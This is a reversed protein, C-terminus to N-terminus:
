AAGWDMYIGASCQANAGADTYMQYRIEFDSTEDIGAPVSRYVHRTHNNAVIQHFTTQTSHTGNASHTWGAAVATQRGADSGLKSELDWIDDALVSPTYAM